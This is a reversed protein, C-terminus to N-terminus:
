EAGPIPSQSGGIISTSNGKTPKVRGSGSSSGRPISSGSLEGQNNAPQIEQPSQSRLGAREWEPPNIGGAATFVENRAEDLSLKGKRYQLWINDIAESNKATKFTDPFLGRVAEWTISQMQRPLVGREEAARRYAEAYLGYTGQVGTVSSNAPGGEGKVGSGFNHLVERSNGSLPRLLGAAVAHTDITVNGSPDYPAYINSYFSRVKHQGGLNASINAKSPDQLIVVAKGIENLSGWGTKYPVGKDTLRVGAFDGEPTVIQHERPIHAQDYTRLWMAKLGPDDIEQLTKGKIAELMPAYKEKAWIETAKQSMADDWKYGQKQTMVDLVRQGLSVNMFWDKQPSLVALVGALAQDPQNYEKGWRDVINRAGDYWLMSRARTDEPVKDYLYLLNNKVENIFDDAQKDPTRSKSKFNPYQQVLSMNHKFAEPDRKASDLDIILNQDLPNETAKVATPLRTSIIDPGVNKISMGIPMGKTAQLGYKLGATGAEIAGPLPAFEGFTEGVNATAQRSKQDAVGAPITPPLAPVNIDTGPIRFGEKKVQETTAMKTKQEVGKLFADIRGQDEPRNFVSAFGNYLQELDGGLGLTQATAGRAFGAFLDALGTLPKELGGAAASQQKTVGGRGFRPGADTMTSSPGAALQMGELSPEEQDIPLYNVDLYHNVIADELKSYAM